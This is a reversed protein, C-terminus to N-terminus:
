RRPRTIRGLPGLLPAALRIAARAEELGLRAAIAVYAIIGGLGLALLFLFSVWVDGRGFGSWALSAILAAPLAVATLAIRASRLLTRAQFDPEAVALRWALFVTLLISTLSSSLAIGAVGLVIAFLVDLVFNLIVNMTGTALLVFGRRRANHAGALVPSVMLVVILPAFAAVVHSTVAVGTAGFAGRGYAFTVALPALAAGLAALPIFAALGLAVSRRTAEGLGVADETRTARVQAPYMAAGWAPAIASIPTRVLVEGYRLASVAGPAILSAIARDAVVNLQLIGASVTLPWAHRAFSRLGLGRAWLIPIPVISGRVAAVALVAASTVVGALSGVVYAGLGLSAWGAVLVALTTAPGLLTAVAISRFREEAQCIATLIGSMAAFFAMPALLQLYGTASSRSASDLGPGTVDIVVGAFWALLVVLVVSGIAVWAMVAGALRRAQRRGVTSRADLYAPVLATVTGSTLVGSLTVPLVLAILVADLERSLGVQAAVFLERAIGILQSAASGGTLILASRGVARLSFGPRDGSV